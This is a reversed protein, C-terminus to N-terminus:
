IFKSQYKLWHQVKCARNWLQNAVLGPKLKMQNLKYMKNYMHQYNEQM